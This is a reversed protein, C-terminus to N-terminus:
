MCGAGWRLRRQRRWAACGARAATTVPWAPACYSAGARGARGHRELLDSAAGAAGEASVSRAFHLVGPLLRESLGYGIVILAGAALAPEVWPLMPGRLVMAAALLAGLYLFAIQAAGYANGALPAWVISLLTWGALLGLAGIALLADRGRPLPAGAVLAVAVCAWGPRAGAWCARGARLLRGSFFALM